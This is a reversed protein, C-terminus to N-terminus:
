TRNQLASPNSGSLAISRYVAGNNGNIGELLLGDLITGPTGFLEVFVLGSDSGTADYFVESIVTSAHCGAGALFAAAAFIGQFPYSFLKRNQYM